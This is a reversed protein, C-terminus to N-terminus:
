GHPSVKARSRNRRGKIAIKKKQYKISSIGKPSDEKSQGLKSTWLLKLDTRSATFRFLLDVIRKQIGAAKQATWDLTNPPTELIVTLFLPYSKNIFIRHLHSQLKLQKLGSIKPCIQLLLFNTKIELFWESKILIKIRLDIKPFDINSREDFQFFRVIHSEKSLIIFLV